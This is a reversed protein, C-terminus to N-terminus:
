IYFGRNDEYVLCVFGYDRGRDNGRQMTDVYPICIHVDIFFTCYMTDITIATHIYIHITYILFFFHARIDLRDM